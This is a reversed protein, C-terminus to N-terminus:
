RVIFRTENPSVAASFGGGVSRAATGSVILIGPTTMCNM